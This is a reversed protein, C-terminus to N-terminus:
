SIVPVHVYALLMTLSIFKPLWQYNDHVIWLKCCVM